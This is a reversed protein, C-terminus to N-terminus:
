DTRHFFLGLLESVPIHYHCVAAALLCTQLDASDGDDCISSVSSLQFPSWKKASLHQTASLLSMNCRSISFNTCSRKQKERTLGFHAM